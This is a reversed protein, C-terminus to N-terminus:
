GSVIQFPAGVGYGGLSKVCGIDWVLNLRGADGSIVSHIDKKRKLPLLLEWGDSQLVQERRTSLSVTKLILGERGLM